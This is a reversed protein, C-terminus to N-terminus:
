PASQSDEPHITVHVRKGGKNPTGAKMVSKRSDYEIRDSAVRDSSDPDDGQWALADEFLILLGTDPYYEARQGTGHWDPKDPEPKQKLRTPNGFNVVKETKGNKQYVIMKDSLTEISGQTFRVNGIYVTEGKGEDHTASDAEIYMPQKSDSDLALCPTAPCVLAAFLLSAKVCKM